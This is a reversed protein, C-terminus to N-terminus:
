FITSNEYKVSLISQDVSNKQAKEMLQKKRIMKYVYRGNANPWKSVSDLINQHAFM